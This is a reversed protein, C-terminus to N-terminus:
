ENVGLEKWLINFYKSFNPTERCNLPDRDEINFEIDHINKITGPRKTLVVVRDGMSIAETIDHTVMLTTIKEKKLIKYIDVTVKIRTQYDM